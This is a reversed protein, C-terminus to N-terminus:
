VIRQMWKQKRFVHLVMCFDIAMSITFSLWIGNLGYYLPLFHVLPIQVIWLSIFNMYFSAKLYGTGLLPANFISSQSVLIQNFSFLLLPFVAMSVVVPDKSFIKLVYQPFVLVLIFFCCTFLLGAISSYNTAKIARDKRGAGINQGVLTSTAFSLGSIPMMIFHTIRSVVTFIAVSTMGFIAIRKIIISNAISMLIQQYGKPMGIKIIKYIFQKDPHLFDKWQFSLITKKSLYVYMGSICLFVQSVGAAIAVGVIGISSFPGVGVVLICNLVVNVFVKGIMLYMPTLADGAARLATNFSFGTNQLPIVFCMVKGYVIAMELAQGEAGIMLLLPRLFFLCPITLLLSGFLKLFLTQATAYGASEVDGKGFCQSIIGISGNGIISNFFTLYMELVAFIGIAAQADTGIVRLFFIDTVGNISQFLMALMAPWSLHFLCPILPKWTLGPNTKM